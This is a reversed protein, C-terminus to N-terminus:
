ADKLGDRIVGTIQSHRGVIDDYTGMCYEVVSHITSQFVNYCCLCVHQIIRTQIPIM